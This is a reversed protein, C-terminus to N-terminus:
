TSDIVHGHSADFVGKERGTRDSENFPSVDTGFDEDAVLRTFYPLITQM